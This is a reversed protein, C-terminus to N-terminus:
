TIQMYWTNGCSSSLSSSSALWFDVSDFDVGDFVDFAVAIPLVGVADGSFTGGFITV